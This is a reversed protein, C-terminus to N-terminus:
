GYNRLKLHIRINHAIIKNVPYRYNAKDNTYCTIFFFVGQTNEPTVVLGGHDNAKNGDNGNYTVIIALVYSVIKLWKVIPFNM